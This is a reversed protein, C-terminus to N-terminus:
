SPTAEESRRAKIDRVKKRLRERYIELAEERLRKREEPDLEEPIM